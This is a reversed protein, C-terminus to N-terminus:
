LSFVFIEKYRTGQAAATTLTNNSNEINTIPIPLFAEPLKWYM